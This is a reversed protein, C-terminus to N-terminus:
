VLAVERSVNEVKSQWLIIQTKRKVRLLLEEAEKRAKMGEV